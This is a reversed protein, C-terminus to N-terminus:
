DWHSLKSKATLMAPLEAVDEIVEYQWQGFRGDGNVTAIWREVAQRKVAKLLDYGKTELVIHRPTEGAM